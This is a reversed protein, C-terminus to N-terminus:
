KDLKIIPKITGSTYNSMFIMDETIEGFHLVQGKNKDNDVFIVKEDGFYNRVVLKYDRLIEKWQQPEKEKIKIYDNLGIEGRKGSLKQLRTQIDVLDVKGGLKFNSVFQGNGYLKNSSTPNVAKLEFNGAGCKIDVGASGGGGITVDDFLYFFLIEGPGVGKPQYQFLKNFNPYSKLKDITDITVNTLKPSFQVSDDFWHKSIVHRIEEKNDTTEFDSSILSFATCQEISSLFDLDLDQKEILYTKFNIM